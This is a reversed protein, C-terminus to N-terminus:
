QFTISNISISVSTSGSAREIRDSDTYSSGKANNSLSTTIYFVTYNTVDIEIGTTPVTVSTETTGDSLKCTFAGSSGSITVKSYDTADFQMSNSTSVSATGAVNLSPASVRSYSGTSSLTINTITFSTSGKKFPIVSDAGAERYGWNGDADQGFAIGNLSDNVAKASIAISEDECSLDSTIGNIAGVKTQLTKGDDADVSKANTTFNLKNWVGNIKDWIRYPVRDKSIIQAM